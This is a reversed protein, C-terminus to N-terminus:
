LSRSKYCSEQFDLGLPVPHPPTSDGAPWTPLECCRNPKKQIDSQRPVHSILSFDMGEPLKCDLELFLVSHLLHTTIHSHFKKKWSIKCNFSRAYHESWLLYKYAMSKGKKPLCILTIALCFLVELQCLTHHRSSVLPIISHLQPHSALATARCFNLARLTCLDPNNSPPKMLCRSWILGSPHMCDSFTWLFALVIPLRLPPM